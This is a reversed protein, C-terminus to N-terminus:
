QTHDKTTRHSEICDTGQLLGLAVVLQLGVAVGRVAAQVGVALAAGHRGEVAAGVGAGFRLWLLWGSPLLQSHLGTLGEGRGRGGEGAGGIRPGLCERSLSKNM